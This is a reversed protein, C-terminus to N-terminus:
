EGIFEFYGPYGRDLNSVAGSDVSAASGSHSVPNPYDGIPYNQTAQNYLPGSYVEATGSIYPGSYGPAADYLTRGGRYANADYAGNAYPSQAFSATSFLAIGVASLLLKASSSKMNANRQVLSKEGRRVWFTADCMSFGARM